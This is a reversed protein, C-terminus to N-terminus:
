FSLKKKLFNFVVKARRKIIGPYDFVEKSYMDGSDVYIYRPENVVLDAASYESSWPGKKPVPFFIENADSLYAAWWCFTSASMIIKNFKKMFCFDELVSGHFLEANNEKIFKKIFHDNPEDTCVYLKHYKTQNLCKTYFDFSLAFGLEVYDGRRIHVVLDNKSVKPLGKCDIKLWQKVEKKYNKYFKYKQFWGKVVIKKKPLNNILKDLNKTWDNIEIVGNKSYDKGIVKENTNEFGKIPDAELLFGYKEALIRGFCYQFLNNGLRSLYDVKIM